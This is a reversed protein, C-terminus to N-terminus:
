MEPPLISAARPLLQKVRSVVNLTVRVLIEDPVLDGLRIARIRDGIRRFNLGFETIQCIYQGPLLQPSGRWYPKPLRLSNGPLFLQSGPGQQVPVEGFEGTMSSWM